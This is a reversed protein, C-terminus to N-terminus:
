LVAFSNVEFTLSLAIPCSTSVVNFGPSSRVLIIFSSSVDKIPLLEESSLKFDFGDM